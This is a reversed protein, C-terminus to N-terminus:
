VNKLLSFTREWSQEAAAENYAAGHGPLMYGHEVGGPYLFVEADDLQTFTEKVQDIVDMPAARDDDGWHFSLPCKVDPVADLYNQVFSGHYSFGAQTGCKAGAVLAFPGGYCFGMVAVKGNCEDRSRLDDIVDSVDGFAQEFPTRDLRAFARARGEEDHGIVGSDEDRWFPDLVVAAYGEGALREAVMAMDDNVGFIPPVVVVATAPGRDPFAAICPINGGGSAAVTIETVAM